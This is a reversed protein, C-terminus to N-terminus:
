VVTDILLYAHRELGTERLGDVLGAVTGLLTGLQQGVVTVLGAQLLLGTRHTGQPAGTELRQALVKDALYEAIGVFHRIFSPGQRLHVLLFADHAADLVEERPAVLQAEVGDLLHRLEPRVVQAEPFPARQGVALQLGDDHLFHLLAALAPHVVQAGVDLRGVDLVVVGDM